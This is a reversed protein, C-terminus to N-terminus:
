SSEIEGLYITKDSSGSGIIPEKPHFDVENISGAHGPLKYLIRRSTTDWVYVFNDASGCSIKSGDPSWSCKLLNKEINHSHGQFIKICRSQPAFPRVDWIRLQNDMANSLLYSGDPSLRLGTVSDEHGALSYAFKEKRVDWVQITNEIGASFILDSSDSLSVALNQYKTEFSMVSSKVRVDWLKCTKDDSCSAILEAGRRSPCCANVVNSHEAFSESVSLPRRM